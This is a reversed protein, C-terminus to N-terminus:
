NILASAVADIVGIVGIVAFVYAWYRTPIFYLAGADPMVYIRQGTVQDFLVRPARREIRRAFWWVGAAAILGTAATIAAGGAWSFAAMAVMLAGLAILVVMLGSGRWIVM